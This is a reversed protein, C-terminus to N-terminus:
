RQAAYHAEVGAWKARDVGLEDALRLEVWSFALPYSCVLDVDASCGHPLDPVASDGATFQIWVDVGLHRQVEDEPRRHVPHRGPVPSQRRGVGVGDHGCRHPCQGPQDILATSPMRSTLERAVRWARALLRLESDIVEIDRMGRLKHERAVPLVESQNLGISISPGRRHRGRPGRQGGGPSVQTLLLREVCQGLAPM